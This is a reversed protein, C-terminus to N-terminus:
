VKREPDTVADRIKDAAGVVPGSWFRAVGNRPAGPHAHQPASVKAMEVNDKLNILQQKDIKERLVKFQTGEEDSVHEDLTGQLQQLLEKFNPDAADAQELKQLVEELAQHQDLDKQYTDHSMKQEILPYVFTEEAISHRVLEAVLKSTLEHREQVDSTDIAKQVLEKAMKHDKELVDIVDAPNDGVTEKTFTVMRMPAAASTCRTQQQVLQGSPLFGFASPAMTMAIAAFTATKM